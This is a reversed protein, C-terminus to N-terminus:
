NSNVKKFRSGCGEICPYWVELVGDKIKYNCTRSSNFVPSKLVFSSDTLTEISGSKGWFYSDNNSTYTLDSNIQLTINNAKEWKWITGPSIYNEFETWNGTFSNEPATNENKECSIFAFMFLLFTLQKM